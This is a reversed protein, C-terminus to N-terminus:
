VATRSGSRYVDKLGAPTGAVAKAKLATLRPIFRNHFSRLRLTFSAQSSGKPDFDM